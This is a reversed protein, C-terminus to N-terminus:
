FRSPVQLKSFTILDEALKVTLLDDYVCHLHLNIVYSACRHHIHMTLLDIYM